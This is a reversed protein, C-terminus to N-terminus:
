VIVAFKAELDAAEQSRGQHELFLAYNMHIAQTNPHVRGSSNEFVDLAQKYLTEADDYRKIQHYLAALNNKSSAVLVSDAGTLEQRIKLSELYLREASHVNYQM